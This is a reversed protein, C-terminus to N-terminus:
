GGFGHYPVNRQEPEKETFSSIKTKIKKKIAPLLIKGVYISVEINEDIGIIDQIKNKIMDQVRSTLGPIDVDVVLVLKTRINVGRGAAVIRTNSDKVEPVERLLRHILDELAGLSVTVRGAPNDFAIIKDRHVNVSFIRYILFHILLIFAGLAMAGYRLNQDVYVLQTLRIVEDVKVWELSFMVLFCGLFLGVTVSFLVAMRKIFDM